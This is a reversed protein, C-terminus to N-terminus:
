PTGGVFNRPAFPFPPGDWRGVRFVRGALWFEGVERRIEALHACLDFAGARRRDVDVPHRMEGGGPVADNGIAELGARVRKGAGDAPSLDRDSVAYGIM